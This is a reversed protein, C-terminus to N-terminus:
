HWNTNPLKELYRQSMFELGACIEVESITSIIIHPEHLEGSVWDQSKKTANRYFHPEETGHFYFLSEVSAYKNIETCASYIGGLLQANQSAKHSHCLKHQANLYNARYGLRKEGQVNLEGSQM